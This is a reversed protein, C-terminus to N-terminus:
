NIKKYERLPVDVYNLVFSSPKGGVGLKNVARVQLMNIGSRLFWTWKQGTEKWGTDDVDVEFHGFIPRIPKLTCSCGIM